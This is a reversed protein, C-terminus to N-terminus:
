AENRSTTSRISTRIEAKISIVLRSSEDIYHAMLHTAQRHEDKLAELKRRIKLPKSLWVTLRGMDGDFWRARNIARLFIEESHSKFAENCESLEKTLQQTDVSAIGAKQFDLYREWIDYLDRSSEGYFQDLASLAEQINATRRELIREHSKMFRNHRNTLVSSLFNVAASLATAFGVIVAAQVATDLTSFWEM